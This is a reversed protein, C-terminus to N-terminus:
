SIQFTFFATFLYVISTTVLIYSSVPLNPSLTLTDHLQKKLLTNPQWQFATSSISNEFYWGDCFRRLQYLISDRFRIQEISTLNITPSNLPPEGCWLRPDAEWIFMYFMFWQILVLLTPWVSWNMAYGCCRSQITQPSAAPPLVHPDCWLRKILKAWEIAWVLFMTFTIIVVWVFLTNWMKSSPLCQHQNSTTYVWYQDEVPIKANEMLRQLEVYVSPTDCWAAISWMPIQTVDTVITHNPKAVDDWPTILGSNTVFAEHVKWWPVFSILMSIIVLAMPTGSLLLLCVVDNRRNM